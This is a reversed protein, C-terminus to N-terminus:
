KMCLKGGTRKKEPDLYEMEARVILNLLQQAEKEKIILDKIHEIKDLQNTQPRNVDSEIAGLMISSASTSLQWYFEWFDFNREQKERRIYEDIIYNNLRLM